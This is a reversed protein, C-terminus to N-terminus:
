GTPPPPAGAVLDQLFKRRMVELVATSGDAAILFAGTGGVVQDRFYAITETDGGFVVGNLTAGSRLLRDRAPAAEEGMNDAGNGIV